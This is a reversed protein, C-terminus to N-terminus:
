QRCLRCGLCSRTKAILQRHKPRALVEDIATTQKHQNKSKIETSPQNLYRTHDLVHGNTARDAMSPIPPDQTKLRNKGWSSQARLLPISKVTLCRSPLIPCSLIPYSLVRCSVCQQITHVVATSDIITYLCLCRAEAAIRPWHTHPGTRSNFRTRHSIYYM